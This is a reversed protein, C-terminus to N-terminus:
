APGDTTPPVFQGHFGLPIHQPVEARAMEALTAADLVVLFSTRVDPDLVVSLLVGDDEADAGPRPIFVPEGPYTGVQQWTLSEGTTVDIRCIRDLFDSGGGPDTGVGYAYTYDRGNCREYHTRALELPQASLLRSRVDGTALNLTFRQLTAQPLPGPNGLLSDLFLFDVIRADDYVLADVHLLGDDEFANVHHFAFCAQETHVSTPHGTDLDILTFTTGREPRWHYNRIFPQGSLLMRLPDVVFPFEMLVVRNESMGFSHMYAPTKSPVRAVLHRSRSGVPLSYVNYATRSGFEILYNLAAQRVHDFHPHATTISGSIDDDFDEVGVSALTTRDFVVQIPIETMAVFDDAVRSLNVNANGGWASSFRSVVRRFLSKCPDTAFQSYRLTGRSASLYDPTRLFRNAYSVAGDAFTFRHLMAMGDFWHNLRRQGITWMAPGNRILDGTLWQPLAGRVPLSDISIENHQDTFGLAYGPM